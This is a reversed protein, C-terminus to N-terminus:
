CLVAVIEFRYRSTHGSWIFNPSGEKYCHIAPLNLLFIVIYVSTSFSRPVVHVPYLFCENTSITVKKVVEKELEPDAGM